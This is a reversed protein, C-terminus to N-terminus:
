CPTLRDRKIRFEPPFHIEGDKFYLRDILIDDHLDLYTGIGLPHSPIEFTQALSAIQHLGVGSEYTSSLIIKKQPEPLGRVMPKWITIDGLTHCDAAMRFPSIDSGPDEIYDFDSPDFHSCFTTVDKESWTGGLDLRLRFQQKLNKALHIASTVDLSGMKVKATTCGFPHKAKKLIEEPTGSLFLAVPAKAIRPATLGWLGFRVSPLDTRKTKLAALTEPHTELNRGPLPSVESWIGNEGELLFGEKNGIRFSFIDFHM